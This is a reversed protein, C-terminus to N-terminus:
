KVKFLQEFYWKLWEGFSMGKKEQQAPSSSM